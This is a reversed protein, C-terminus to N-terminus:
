VVKTTYSRIRKSLELAVINASSWCAQFNFGGTIGDVNLVEGTAFLGDQQRHMFTEPDFFDTNLGGCTVFEEKFTTKGSMSLSYRTIHEILLQRKAKGVEAWKLWDPFLCAECLHVWLRKPIEEFPSFSRVTKKHELTQINKLIRETEQFSKGLWNIQVTEQYQSHFLPIAGFASLKLVAPGSIGWHTILLPGTYELKHSSLTVVANPVSCGMLEKLPSGPINFTFLSPIRPTLQLDLKELWQYHQDSSQGGISIVINKTEFFAQNSCYVLWHSEKRELSVVEHQYHLPIAYQQLLQQFLRIITESSNSEPFIRNDAETKLEVGHKQFWEITDKNNFTNFAQKLFFSGRPYNDLFTSTTSNNTVNCRGGGSIRVKTLVKATKELIVIRAAPNLEALRLATFFGSAGGGIILVDIM